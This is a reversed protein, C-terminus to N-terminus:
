LRTEKKSITGLLRKKRYGYFNISVQKIKAGDRFTIPDGKEEGVYNILVGLVLALGVGVPFAVAMGAIAIAASLLINAANFIIGGLFLAEM